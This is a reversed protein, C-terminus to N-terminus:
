ELDLELIDYGPYRDSGRHAMYVAVKVHYFEV